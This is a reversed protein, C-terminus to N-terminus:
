LRTALDEALGPCGDAAWDRFAAQSGAGFIGDIPGSYAGARAMREQYLRAVEPPLDQMALPHLMDAIAGEHRGALCQSIGRALLLDGIGVAWNCSEQPYAEIPRTLDAVADGWAQDLFFIRQREWWIDLDFAEGTFRIREPCSLGNLAPNPDRQFRQMSLLQRQALRESAALAAAPDASPGRALAMVLNEGYGWNLADFSLAAEFCAVARRFDRDQGARIGRANLTQAALKPDESLTVGPACAGVQTGASGGADVAMKLAFAAFLALIVLPWLGGKRSNDITVAGHIQTGQGAIGGPASADIRPEPKGGRKGRLRGWLKWLTTATAVLAAGLWALTERNNKETLFSWIAEFDM